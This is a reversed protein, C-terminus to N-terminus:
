GSDSNFPMRWENYPAFRVREGVMFDFLDYSVQEQASLATRDIAYLRQVFGRDAALQAAQTQPTVSPLRDDYNHVGAYTASTPDARYVAAREDAFLRALAASASQAHAMPALAMSATLALAATIFKM